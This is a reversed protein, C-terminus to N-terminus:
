KPEMRRVPAELHTVCNPYTCLSKLIEVDQEDIKGDHNLDRADNPGTAPRNLWMKLEGLDNMDVRGHGKLDGPILKPVSVKIDVEAQGSRARITTSGPGMATVQATVGRDSTGVAAIGPNDSTISVRPSKTVNIRQGDAATGEIMLSMQRGTYAFTLWSPEAKLASYEVGSDVVFSVIPSSILQNETTRCLAKMKSPGTFNKPIRISAEFPPHTITVADISDVMIVVGQCDTGEHLTVVVPMRVGSIVAGNQPSSIEIGGATQTWAESCALLVAVIQILFFGARKM